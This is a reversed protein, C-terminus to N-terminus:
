VKNNLVKNLLTFFLQFYYLLFHFLFNQVTALYINIKAYKKININM